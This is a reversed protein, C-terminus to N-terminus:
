CGFYIFFVYLETVFFFWDSNLFSCLVQTFMKGFVVDVYVVSVHFSAEVGKIMLFHLDFGCQATEECRNSHSDDLLFYLLHQLSTFFLSCNLM